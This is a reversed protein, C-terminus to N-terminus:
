LLRLGVCDGLGHVGVSYLLALRCVSVLSHSLFLGCSCTLIRTFGSSPKDSTGWIFRLMDVVEM